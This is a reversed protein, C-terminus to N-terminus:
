PSGHCPPCLNHQCLYGPQGQDRGSCRAPGRSGLQIAIGPGLDGRKDTRSAPHGRWQVGAWRCAEQHHHCHCAGHQLGAAEGLPCGHAACEPQRLATHAPAQTEGPSGGSGPDRLGNTHPCGMQGTHAGRSRCLLLFHWSCRLATLLLRAWDKAGPASGARQLSPWPCTGPATRGSMKGPPCSSRCLVDTDACVARNLPDAPVRRWRDGMSPDGYQADRRVWCCHEHSRTCRAPMEGGVGPIVPPASPRTWWNHTCCPGLGGAVHVDWAWRHWDETIDSECRSM